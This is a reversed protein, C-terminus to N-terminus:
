SQEGGTNSSSSLGTRELLDSALRAFSSDADRVAAAHSGIAGDAVTLEFIPKRAEQAM